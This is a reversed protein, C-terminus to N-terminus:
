ASRFSDPSTLQRLDATPPLTLGDYPQVRGSERYADQLRAVTQPLDRSYRALYTGPCYKWGQQGMLHNLESSGDCSHPPGAFDLERSCAKCWAYNCKPLPCAVVKAEQYETKDVFADRGCRDRTLDADLLVGPVYKRCHFPVSFAGMELEYFLDAESDTLGIQQAM